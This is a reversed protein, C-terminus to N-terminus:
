RHQPTNTYSDDINSGDYNNDNTTAYDFNNQRVMM